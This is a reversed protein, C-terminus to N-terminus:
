RPAVPTGHVLLNRHTAITNTNVVVGTRARLQTRLEADRPSRTVLSTLSLTDFPTLPCGSEAQRQYFWRMHWLEYPLWSARTVVSAQAYLWRYFGLVRGQKWTDRVLSAEERATTRRTRRVHTYLYHWASESFTQAVQQDHFHLIWLLVDTRMAHVCREVTLRSCGLERAIQTAFGNTAFVRDHYREYERRAVGVEALRLYFSTKAPAQNAQLVAAAAMRRAIVKGSRPQGARMRWITGGEIAVGQATIAQLAPQLSTGLQGIDVGFLEHL